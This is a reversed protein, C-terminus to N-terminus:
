SSFPKRGEAAAAVLLAVRKARTEPRKADNIYSLCQKKVGPTYTDYGKQAGPTARLARKFDPPMTMTEVHSLANWTGSKKALEIPKMGAGTMLGAAIMKEVRAKNSAAWRSKPKRPTFRQEYCTEDVPHALGDIWGFCLAEEVADNYTVTPLGSHKKAIVLWVGTSSAHHRELWARWAKRSKPQVHSYEPM